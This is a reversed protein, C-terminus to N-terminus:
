SLKVAFIKLYTKGYGANFIEGLFFRSTTPEKGKLVNM